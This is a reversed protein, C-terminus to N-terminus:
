WLVFNFKKTGQHLLIAEIGIAVAEICGYVNDGGKTM